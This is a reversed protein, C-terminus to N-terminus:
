YMVLITKKKKTSETMNGRATVICCGYVNTLVLAINVLLLTFGLSECSVYHLKNAALSLVFSASFFDAIFFINVKSTKVVYCLICSSQLIRFVLVLAVNRYIFGCTDSSSHMATGCSKSQTTNSCSIPTSSKKKRKKKKSINYTFLEEQLMKLTTLCWSRQETWLLSETQTFINRELKTMPNYLFFLMTNALYCSVYRM